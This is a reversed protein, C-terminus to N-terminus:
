KKKIRMKTLYNKETMYVPTTMAIKENKLKFTAEQINLAEIDGDVYKGQSIGKKLVEQNTSDIDWLGNFNLDGSFPLLGSRIKFYSSSKLNEKLEPTTAGALIAEKIAKTVNLIEYIGM